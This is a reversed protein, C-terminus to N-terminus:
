DVRYERQRRGELGAALRVGVNLPIVVIRPDGSALAKEAREQTIQTAGTCGCLLLAFAVVALVRGDRAGGGAYPSGGM